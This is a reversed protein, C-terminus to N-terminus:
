QVPPRLPAEIMPTQVMQDRPSEIIPAEPARRESALIAEEMLRAGIDPKFHRPDHLWFNSSDSYPSDLFDVVHPTVERLRRLARRSQERGHWSKLDVRDLLDRNAPLLVFVLRFGHRNALAAAHELLKLCAAPPVLGDPMQRLIEQYRETDAQIANWYRANKETLKADRAKKSAINRTGDVHYAPNEGKAKLRLTAAAYWIQTLAASFRITDWPVIEDSPERCDLTFTRHSFTIAVLALKDLTSNRLIALQDSFTSSGIGGNLFRYQPLEIYAPDTFAIRSDGLLLANYDAGRALSRKFQRESSHYYGATNTGFYGFPDVAAVFGAPLAITTMGVSLWVAVLRHCRTTM